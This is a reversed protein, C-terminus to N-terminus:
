LVGLASPMYLSMNSRSARVVTSITSRMMALRHTSKLRTDDHTAWKRLWRKTSRLSFFVAFSSRTSSAWFFRHTLSHALPPM